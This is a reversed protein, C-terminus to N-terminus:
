DNNDEETVEEASGGNDMKEIADRAFMFAASLHLIIRRIVEELDEGGILEYEYFLWLGDGLTYAKTYKLTSNIKEGLAVYNDRNGEELDYIGPVAINLFNEDNECYMYLFNVGEYTFAYGLTDAETLNFGLNEFAELIKEKM